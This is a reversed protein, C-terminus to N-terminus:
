EKNLLFSSHAFLGGLKGFIIVSVFNEKKQTLSNFERQRLGSIQSPAAIVSLSSRISYRARFSFNLEPPFTFAPLSVAFRQNAAPSGGRARGREILFDGGRAGCQSLTYRKYIQANM